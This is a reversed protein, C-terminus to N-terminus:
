GKWTINSTTSERAPQRSKKLIGILSAFEEKMLTNYDLATSDTSVHGFYRVVEGVFAAPAATDGVKEALELATRGM